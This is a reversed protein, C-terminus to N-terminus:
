DTTAIKFKTLTSHFLLPYLIYYFDGFFKVFPEYGMKDKYFICHLLKLCYLDKLSMITIKLEMM